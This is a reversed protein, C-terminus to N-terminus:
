YQYKLIYNWVWSKSFLELLNQVKEFPLNNYKCEVWAHNDNLKSDFSHNRSTGKSWWLSKFGMQLRCSKWCCEKDYGRRQDKQRQCRDCIKRFFISFLWKVKSVFNRDFRVVYMELQWKKSRYLKCFSFVICVGYLICEFKNM